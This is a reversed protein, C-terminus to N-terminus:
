LMCIMRSVKLRGFVINPLYFCIVHGHQCSNFAYRRWGVMELTVAEENGMLFSVDPKTNHISELWGSRCGIQTMGATILPQLHGRTENKPDQPNCKAWILNYKLCKVAYRRKKREMNWKESPVEFFLCILSPTFLRASSLPHSLCAPFSVFVFGVLGRHCLGPSLGLLLTSSWTSFDDAVLIRSTESLPCHGAWM